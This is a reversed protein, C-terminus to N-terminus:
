VFGYISINNTMETKPKIALSIVNLIKFNKNKFFPFYNIINNLKLLSYIKDQIM